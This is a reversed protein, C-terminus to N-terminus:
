RVQMMNANIGISIPGNAALWAAMEAFYILAVVHFGCSLSCSLVTVKTHIHHPCFYRLILPRKMSILVIPFAISQKAILTHVVNYYMASSVTKMVPFPFPHTSTCWLKLNRSSANRMLEKM